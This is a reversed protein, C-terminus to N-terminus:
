SKNSNLGRLCLFSKQSVRYMNNFKLDYRTLTNVAMKSVTYACEPWEEDKYRGSIVDDQFKRVMGDLEITSRVADFRDLTKRKIEDEVCTINEKVQALKSTINVIRADKKFEHLSFASCVNRTGWYNTAIIRKAQAKFEALNFKEYIEANNVIIDLGGYRKGIADSHPIISLQDTVDMTIFKGRQRAAGGLEMGLIAEMGGTLGSTTMYAVTSPVRRILERGIQYGLGNVAETVLAIQSRRPM